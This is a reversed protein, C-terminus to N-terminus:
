ANTAGKATAKKTLILAAAGLAGIVLFLIGTVVLLALWVRMTTALAAAVTALVFLVILPSLLIAMLGFGAGIGIELAKRKLILTKLELELTALRRAHAAVGRTAEIPNKPATSPSM